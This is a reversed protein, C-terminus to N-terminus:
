FAISVALLIPRSTYPSPISSLLMPSKRSSVLRTMQRSSSSGAMNNSSNCSTRVLFLLGHKYSSAEPPAWSASIHALRIGGSQTFPKSGGYTSDDSTKDPVARTANRQYWRCSLIPCKNRSEQEPSGRSVLYSLDEIHVQDTHVSTRVTLFDIYILYVSCTKFRSQWLSDRHFFEEIKNTSNDNSADARQCGKAERFFLQILYSLATPIKTIHAIIFLFFQNM